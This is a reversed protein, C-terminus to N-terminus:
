ARKLLFKDSFFKKVRLKISKHGSFNKRGKKSHGSFMKEIEGVGGRALM